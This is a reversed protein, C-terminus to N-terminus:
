KKVLKLELGLDTFKANVGKAFINLQNAILQNTYSEIDYFANNKIIKLLNENDEENLRNLKIQSNMCYIKNNLIHVSSITTVYVKPLEGGIIVANLDLFVLSKLYLENESVFLITEIINLQNSYGSIKILENSLAGINGNNFTIETDIQTNESLLREYDITNDKIIELIGANILDQKCLDWDSESLSKNVILEDVDVSETLKVKLEDSIGSLDSWSYDDGSGLNRCSFFISGFILFFAFCIGFIKYAREQRSKPNKKSEKKILKAQKKEEKRENWFEKIM